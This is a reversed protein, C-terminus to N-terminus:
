SQPEKLFPIKERSKKFDLNKIPLPKTRFRKTTYGECGEYFNYIKTALKCTIGGDCSMGGDYVVGEGNPAEEGCYCAVKKLNYMIVLNGSDNSVNRNLSRSHERLERLTFIIQKGALNYIAKKEANVENGMKNAWWRVMEDVKEDEEQQAVLEKQTVLCFSGALSLVTILLVKKM